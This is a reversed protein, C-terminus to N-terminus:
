PLYCVSGPPVFCVSGADSNQDSIPFAVNQADRGLAEVLEEMERVKQKRREEKYAIQEATEARKKTKLMKADKEWTMLSTEGIAFTGDLHRNLRSAWVEMRNHSDELLMLDSTQVARFLDYFASAECPSRFVLFQIQPVESALESGGIREDWTTVLVHNAVRPKWTDPGCNVDYVSQGVRIAGEAQNNYFTIEIVEEGPYVEIPGRLEVWLYRCVSYVMDPEIRVLRHDRDPADVCLVYMGCVLPGKRSSHIKDDEHLRPDVVGQSWCDVQLGYHMRWTANVSISSITEEVRREMEASPFHLIMSWVPFLGTIRVALVDESYINGDGIGDMVTHPTVVIPCVALNQFEQSILMFGESVFQLLVRSGAVVPRPYGKPLSDANIDLLTAPFEQSVEAAERMEAVFDPCCRWSMEFPFPHPNDEKQM